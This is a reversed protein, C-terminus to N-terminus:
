YLNYLVIRSYKFIERNNTFEFNKKDYNVLKDKLKNLYYHLYRLYILGLKTEIFQKTNLFLKINRMFFNEDNLSFYNFQNDTEYKFRLRRFEYPMFDNLKLVEIKICTKSELSKLLVNLYKLMFTSYEIEMTTLISKKQNLIRNNSLIKTCKEILRMCYFLTKDYCDKVNCSTKYIENEM